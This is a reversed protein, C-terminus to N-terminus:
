PSGIHVGEGRLEHKCCGEWVEDCNIILLRPALDVIKDNTEPEKKKRNGLDDRVLETLGLTKILVLVTRSQTINRNIRTLGSKWTVVTKCVRQSGTISECTGVMEHVDGPDSGCRTGTHDKDEYSHLKQTVTVCTPDHDRQIRQGLERLCDLLTPYKSSM